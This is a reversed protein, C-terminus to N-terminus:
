ETDGKRPGFLASLHERVKYDHEVTMHINLIIGLKVKSELLEEFKSVPITIHDRDICIELLGESVKTEEPKKDTSEM